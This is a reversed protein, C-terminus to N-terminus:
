VLFDEDTEHYSGVGLWIIIMLLKFTPEHIGDRLSLGGILTLELKLLLDFPLVLSLLRPSLCFM